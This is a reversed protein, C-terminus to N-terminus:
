VKFSRVVRVIYQRCIPCESLVKGCNICTAMHGCELIVCNIPADMCIKCLDDAALREPSAISKYDYWLRLVRERLEAKECCGKFDVRNLFLIKKLQKVSLVDLDASESIDSLQIHNMNALEQNGSSYLVNNRDGMDDDIRPYNSHYRGQGTSSTAEDDIATLLSATALREMPEGDALSISADESLSDGDSLEVSGKSRQELYSLFAELQLKKDAESVTATDLMKRIKKLQRRIGSRRKGCKNCKSSITATTAQSSHVIPEQQQEHVRAVEPNAGYTATILYSDSRRRAVQSSATDSRVRSNIATDTLNVDNSSDTLETMTVPTTDIAPASENTGSSDTNNVVQWPETDTSFTTEAEPLLEVRDDKANLEDFSSSSTENKSESIPVQDINVGQSPGAEGILNDPLAIKKSDNRQFGDLEDNEGEEDSCECGNQNAESALMNDIRETLSLKAKSSGHIGPVSMQHAPSSVSSSNASSDAGSTIGSGDSYENNPPLVNKANPLVETEELIPQTTNDAVSANRQEGTIGYVDNTGFQPQQNVIGEPQSQSRLNEEAPSNRKGSNAGKFIDSSLKHTFASFLNHCSNKIQGITNACSEASTAYFSNQRGSSASQRGGSSGGTSSPSSINFTRGNRSGTSGTPSRPSSSTSNASAIVLNILDDKEVCGSTSIHKSQLYWILDKVKLQRLDVKSLPRKTFILCNHCLVKEQRKELCNECFLRRCEFCSKKRTIIGFRVKCSECHM